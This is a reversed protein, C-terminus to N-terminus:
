GLSFSRVVTDRPVYLIYKNYYKGNSIDNGLLWSVFWNRTTVDVYKEVIPTAGDTEKIYTISQKFTEKHLGDATRVYATYYATNNITGSGLIFNGSRANGVDKFSYINSTDWLKSEVFKPYNNGIGISFAVLLQAIVCCGATTLIASGIKRGYWYAIVFTAICVGLTICAIGTM